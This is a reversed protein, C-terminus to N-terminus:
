DDDDDTDRFTRESLPWADGVCVVKMGSRRYKGRSSKCQVNCPPQLRFILLCEIDDVLKKSFNTGQPLDLEGVIPCHNKTHADVCKWVAEKADRRWRKRVSTENGYAKGIYYIAAARPALYAYLVRNDKWRPDDDDGLDYWRVKVTFEKAM